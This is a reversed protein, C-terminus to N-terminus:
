SLVLLSFHVSHVGLFINGLCGVLFYGYFFSVSFCNLLSQWVLTWVGFDHYAMWIGVLGSVLVSVLSARALRKFDLDVTLRAQQVIGLSNIVLTLGM